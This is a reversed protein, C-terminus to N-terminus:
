EQGRSSYDRGQVTDAPAPQRVIQVIEAPVPNRGCGIRGLWGRTKWRNYIERGHLEIRFTGWFAEKLECSLGCEKELAAAIARARPEFHCTKCYYIVVDKM